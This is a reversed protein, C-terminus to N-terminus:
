ADAWKPRRSIGAKRERLHDLRLRMREVRPATKKIAKARRPMAASWRPDDRCLKAAKIVLEWAETQNM